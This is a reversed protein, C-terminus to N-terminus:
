GFGNALRRCIPESLMPEIEIRIGLSPSKEQDYLWTIRPDSDARGKIPVIKGKKNVYSKRKEPILCESIEDRIKKFAFINNDDDLRRPSLRTLKVICPLKIEDNWSNFLARILFQQWKRRDDKVSWHQSSNGESVTKFNPLDWKIKEM